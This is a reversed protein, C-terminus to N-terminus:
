NCTVTGSNRAAEARVMDEYQDIETKNGCQEPFTVTSDQSGIRYAYSCTSCKNCATLALGLIVIALFFFKKM